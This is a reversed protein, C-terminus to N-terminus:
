YAGQLQGLRRQPFGRQSFYVHRCFIMQHMINQKLGRAGYSARGTGPPCIATVFTEIWAGRALRSMFPRFTAIAEVPKLGRAGQSARCATLPRCHTCTRKLGRAGYSARCVIMNIM